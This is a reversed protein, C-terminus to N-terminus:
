IQSNVTITGEVQKEKNVKIDEANKKEKEEKEEDEEATNEIETILSKLKKGIETLCDFLIAQGAQKDIVNLKFKLLKEKLQTDSILIKCDISKVNQNKLKKERDDESELLIELYKQEFIDNM